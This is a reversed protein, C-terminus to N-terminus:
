LINRPFRVRMKEELHVMLCKGQARVTQISREALATRSKGYMQGPQLLTELGQAARIKQAVRMGAALALETSLLGWVTELFDQWHAM